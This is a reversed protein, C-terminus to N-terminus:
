CSDLKVSGSFIRIVCSKLCRVIFTILISKLSGAVLTYPFHLEAGLSKLKFALLYFIIIFAMKIFM